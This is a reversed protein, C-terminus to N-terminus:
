ALPPANPSSLLTEVSQRAPPRFSLGDLPRVLLEEAKRDVPLTLAILIRPVPAFAPSLFSPTVKSLTPADLYCGDPCLTNQSSSTKQDGCCEHTTAKPSEAHALACLQCSSFTLIWFVALLIARLTSNM